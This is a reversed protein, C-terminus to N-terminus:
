VGETKSASIGGVRSRELPQALGSTREGGLIARVAVLSLVIGAGAVFFLTRPSTADLLAGGAGFAIAEAIFPATYVTGFVRGLMQAPVAHQILTDNGVNELGNGSGTVMQCALALAFLPALATALEGAVMLGMGSLLLAAAGFRSLSSVLVLPALVMGIGYAATLLGYGAAGTHFVSRALFVGAVNNLAAFVVTLFLGVMVALPVRHSVVYALGERTERLFPSAAADRRPRAELRVIFLASAVFSAADVGIATRAGIGGVLVGGIAPGLAMTSYLGAALLSNATILEDSSVLAPVTSRGAPAFITALTTAVFVLIWLVPFSPAFAAISGFLLAQGLDCVVMVRRHDFRDAITGAFPGFLRPLAQALLLIGIYAGTRKTDYVYSVLAVLVINDGLFSIVRAAWLSRFEPHTRLVSLKSTAGTATV